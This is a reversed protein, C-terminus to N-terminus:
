KHERRSRYCPNLFAEVNQMTMKWEQNISLLNKIDGGGVFEPDAM